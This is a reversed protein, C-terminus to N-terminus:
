RGILLISSDVYTGIYSLTFNVKDYARQMTPLVMMKLCDQADPCKSMIHAELPVLPKEDTATSVPLKYTNPTHNCFIGKLASAHQSFLTTYFFYCVAVLCFAFAIPRNRRGARPFMEEPRKENDDLQRKSDTSYTPLMESTMNITSAHSTTTFWPSTTSSSWSEPFHCPQVLFGSCRLPLRPRQMWVRVNQMNPSQAKM